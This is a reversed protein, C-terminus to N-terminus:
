WAVIMPFDAWHAADCTMPVTSVMGPRIANMPTPDLSGWTNEMGAAASPVSIAGTAILNREM